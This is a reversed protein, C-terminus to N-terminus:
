PRKVVYPIGWTSIEVPASDDKITQGPSANVVAHFFGPWQNTEFKQEYVKSYGSGYQTSSILDFKVKGRHLGHLDGGHTLTVFDSDAYASYLEVTVKVPENSQIRPIERRPGKPGMERALFYQTPDAVSLTDGGPLYATIKTIIINTSGTGGAPLSVATVHWGPLLNRPGNQQNGNSDPQGMPPGDQNMGGGPRNGHMGNGGQGGNMGGFGGPRNGGAGMSDPRMPDGKEFKFNIKISSTFAKQIVTDPASSTDSYSAAIFLVGEYNKILTGTASDGTIQSTFDQNVLRVKQGVRLPYIESQTKALYNMAQEENYNPEFSAAASDSEALKQLTQADSTGSVDAPGTPSSGCGAATIILFLTFLVSVGGTIWRKLNMIISRIKNIFSENGRIVAAASVLKYLKM